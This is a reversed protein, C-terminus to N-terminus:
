GRIGFLEAATDGLIAAREQAGFKCADVFRVPEPEAITFPADTGMLLRDPGALECVFRLTATDYVITDFYLRRFGEMPDCNQAPATAFSRRLRGLVMPLAAGGHSIVLKVGPYRALHGSYLLRQDPAGFTPHVFLTAKRRSAAEWFPELDPDDLVGSTGKPQTGIMAGHFGADLAQELVEAAHRGSQLPVTALPVLFPYPKVGALMHANLYRSWNAGEDAPIDYGFLDLWGGVVQRDIGRAALWRKRADADSMGGPVPRKPDNGAFAFRHGGDAVAVKVSPFPRKQAAVEDLFAPPVYHAHADIIV